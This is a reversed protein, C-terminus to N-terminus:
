FESFASRPIASERTPLGNQGSSKNNLSVFLALIVVCIVALVLVLM